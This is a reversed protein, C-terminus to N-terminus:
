WPVFVIIKPNHNKYLLFTLARRITSKGSDPHGWIVNVGKEFNVELHEHCQFNNLVLKKIMIM